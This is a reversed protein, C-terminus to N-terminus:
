PLATLLECSVVLKCVPTVSLESPHFKPSVVFTNGSGELWSTCADLRGSVSTNGLATLRGAALDGGRAPGPECRRLDDPAIAEPLLRLEPDWSVWSLPTSM